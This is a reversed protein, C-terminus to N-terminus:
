RVVEIWQLRRGCLSRADTAPVTHLAPPAGTRTIAVEGLSDNAASPVFPSAGARHLIVPQEGAPLSVTGVDTFQGGPGIQDAISGVRRRAISVTMEQTLSGQVWVTYRGARPVHIVASFVGATPKLTLGDPIPNAATPLGVWTPPHLSRTAKVSAVVTAAAFAIQAHEARARSGLRTIRRCSLAPPNYLPADAADGAVVHSLVTPTSSRRFVDYFRGQYVLRYDAPPRTALPSRDIVIMKFTNQFGYTVDGLDWPYQLQPLSRVESGTPPAADGNIHPLYPGMTRLFYAPWEFDWLDYYTPGEGRFRNNITTLEALRPGPGLPAQRFSESNTWLVALSIVAALTWGLWPRVLDHLAVAGLMAALVATISLITMVKSAAYPTSRELLMWAAIGNGLLLVLPGWARRRITWMAGLVASGVALWLLTYVLGVHLTIPLRYNGNPWIGMVQWLNLPALLNGLANDTNAASGLVSTTVQFSTAASSLVPYAIAAGGALAVAVAAVSRPRPRRLSGRIRVLSLVVFVAAPVALWAVAPVALVYLEAAAVVLLPALSRASPPRRLIRAGLVIFLTILVTTLLEKISSILFFSYALGAQAAIFACLARLPRSRVAGRLLEFLALGGFSLATALFPDYIWPIDQGVLPRLAGIAVDGGLPYASTLYGQMLQVAESSQYPLAAISHYGHALVERTLLFHFVPDGDVGYGLFDPHGYALVPAAFVLFLLVGVGLAWRETRLGRVRTPAVLFGLLAVGVVFWPAAPSLSASRSVLSAVVIVLALGVGPLITGPLAWGGIREVLLGCGVSTALIILPFALWDVLM